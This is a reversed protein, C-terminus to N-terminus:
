QLLIPVQAECYKQFAEYNMQANINGLYWVALAVVCILVTDLIQKINVTQGMITIEKTLDM